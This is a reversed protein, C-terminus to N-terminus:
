PREPQWLKRCNKVATLDPLLKYCSDFCAVVTIATLAPLLQLLQWLQSCSAVATLVQMVKYYIEFRAVAQLQWLQHCSTVATLLKHCNDVAQLLQWCSTVATLLKYCSDFNVAQTVATLTSLRHLLQWLLWGSVLKSALGLNRCTKVHIERLHYMSKDFKNFM